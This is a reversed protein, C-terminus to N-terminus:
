YGDKMPKTPTVSEVVKGNKLRGLLDVTKDKDLKTHYGNNVQMVPAEVCAGLCEVETLTFLDDESTEGNETIGTIDKIAAIVADSGTIMCSCNTCVQLHYKGVPKLNFMTYFTAVEYVRIYPLELREAVANMAATSLWGGNEDQALKLVPIVASQQRGKPYRKVIRKVKAETGKSFVFPKEVIESGTLKVKAM